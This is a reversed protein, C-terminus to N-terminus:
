AAGAGAWGQRWWAAYNLHALVFTSKYWLSILFSILKRWLPKCYAGPCMHGFLSSGDMVGSFIM